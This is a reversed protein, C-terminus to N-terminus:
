NDEKAETFGGGCENCRLNDEFRAFWQISVTVPDECGCEISMKTAKRPKTIKPAGFGNRYTVLAKALADVQPRYREITADPVSTVSWGITPAQELQIGLSEAIEKFRKNHYRGNNSTDKVGTNHAISHALEHLLTGLTAEAGRALSEGGLLIEHAGDKWSEPAFHGHALGRGSKGSALALVINEPVDPYTKRVQAVIRDLADIIKISPTENVRAVM